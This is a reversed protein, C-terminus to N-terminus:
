LYFLIFFYIDTESIEFFLSVKQLPQIFECEIPFRERRSGERKESNLNFKRSTFESTLPTKKQYFLNLPNFGEAGDKFFNSQKQTRRQENLFDCYTIKGM